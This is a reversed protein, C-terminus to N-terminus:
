SFCESLIIVYKIYQVELYSPIIRKIFQDKCNLPMMRM